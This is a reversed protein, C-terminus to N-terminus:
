PFIIGALSPFLLALPLCGANDKGAQSWRYERMLCKKLVLGEHKRLKEGNERKGRYDKNGHIDFLKELSLSLCSFDAIFLRDGQRLGNFNLCVM